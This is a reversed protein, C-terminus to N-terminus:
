ETEVVAAGREQCSNLIREIVRAKAIHIWQLTGLDKKDKLNSNIEVQRKHADTYLFDLFSVSYM